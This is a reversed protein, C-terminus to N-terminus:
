FEAVGTGLKRGIAKRLDDMTALRGHLPAIQKVDLKLRQINDYFNVSFPNPTAPPPANPAPPTFVDVEILIGEKPLFAMLMGDNHPNDKIHHLHLERGGKDSLM